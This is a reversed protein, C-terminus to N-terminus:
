MTRLMSYTFIISALAISYLCADHKMRLTPDPSIWKCPVSRGIAHDFFTLPVDSPGDCPHFFETIYSAIRMTPNLMVIFATVTFMKVTLATTSYKAISRISGFERYTHTLNPLVRCIQTVQSGNPFFNPLKPLINWCHLVHDAPSVDVIFFTADGICFGSTM